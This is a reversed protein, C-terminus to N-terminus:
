QPKQIVKEASHQMDAAAEKRRPFTVQYQADKMQKEIDYEVAAVEEPKATLEMPQEKDDPLAAFVSFYDRYPPLNWAGYGPVDDPLGLALSNWAAGNRVAQSFAGCGPIGLGLDPCDNGWGGLGFHGAGDWDGLGDLGDWGWLQISAGDDDTSPTLSYLKSEKDGEGSKTLNAKEPKHTSNSEKFWFHWKRGAITSVFSSNSSSAALSTSHKPGVGSAGEATEQVHNSITKM